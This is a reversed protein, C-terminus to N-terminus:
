KGSPHHENWYESRQRRLSKVLVSIGFVLAIAAVGLFIWTWIESGRFIVNAWVAVLGIVMGLLSARTERKNMGSHLWSSAAPLLLRPKVASAGWLAQVTLRDNM